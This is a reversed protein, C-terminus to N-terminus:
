RGPHEVMLRESKPDYVYRHGTPLAPLRIQNATIISRMFEDHTKPAHGETVKYLDLAHPIQIDFVVREQVAFYVAVSTTVLDGGYGRGKEAVGVGTKEQVTASPKAGAHAPEPKARAADKPPERQECGTLLLLVLVVIRSAFQRTTVTREKKVGDGDHNRM